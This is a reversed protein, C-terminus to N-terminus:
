PKKAPLVTITIPRSPITVLSNAKAAKADKQFPVQSQGLVTLTYDGARAGAQIDFTVVGESKGEAISVNAMKIPGPWAHSLLNVSSKFDPWKRDLQVKVEVPKGAEVEIREKAFQLSYPTTEAITAIALERMPRSSAFDQTGSVRTYPRVERTLATDGRSGKAILTIRGAFEPADADSWFVITGQNTGHITTPVAHVGKPLGEAVITIPASYGDTQHVILDCYSAGGRRLTLGGPGPNQHHIVAVFFDPRPARVALVYQYRAGGRRYRDQVLVRYKKGKSLSATGVPDRLHGDFALMRHGFDDLEVVRNGKDDTVVLYPDARGAIRESYVEFYHPGDQSATFEYWDADREKDFRGAVVAPLTIPQPMEATDNPEVELTVPTDTVYVPVGNTAADAWKPRLQQGVLTCTAATPLVSHGTPHDFFRYPGRAFASASLTITETYESLPLENAFWKSPKAASGLNRGYFTVPTPTGMQIARPFANEVHPRDSLILRYPFGGRYSLDFLNVLYEGDADAVFDILPDRGNSDGNSAISKGASTSLTLNADLMTDLVGSQCEIVIRQGKKAPFRFWDDRNQDSTGNIVCNLPVLQATAAEDNPEKEALEQLGRSVAFLRPNTIGFKGVFWLDYTGAEVTAAVSVAFTREKVFKATIGPSDCTMTKADDIDAGLITVEVTSGAAAGLPAIRDLRPSPLDARAVVAALALCFLAWGHCRTPRIASRIM